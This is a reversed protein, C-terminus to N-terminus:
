IETSDMLDTLNAYDPDASFIGILESFTPRNKPEYDWCSKMVLYIPMPCKEPKRLREGKEM